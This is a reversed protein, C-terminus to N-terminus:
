MTRGIVALMRGSASGDRRYSHYEEDSCITCAPHLEISTSPVGEAQLQLVNFEKLALTTEGRRGKRVIDPPFLSAVDEGVEYCCQDAAPGVFAVINRPQSGCQDKMVTITKRVIRALSGRWGAHAAAVVGGVPDYLLVPVCDAVTIALFLDAADTVLADSAPHQGPRDVVVVTDSHIQQTFCVREPDVGLRSFFLKRNQAVAAPDDNVSYSLNLGFPNGSPGGLRASMGARLTSHQSM